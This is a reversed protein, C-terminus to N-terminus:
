GVKRVAVQAGHEVLEYKDDILSLFADIALPPRLHDPRDPRWKYDDFLLIGNPKLLPWALLADLAVNAAVHVGDIYIIDFEEAKLRPLAEDSRLKIKTVKATPNLVRLNHDFRAEVSRPDFPDVCTISANPGNLVNILFWEASRGEFSGIELVSVGPRGVFEQFMDQWRPFNHSTWDESYSMGATSRLSRIVKEARIGNRLHRAADVSENLTRLLLQAIVTKGKTWISHHKNSGREL